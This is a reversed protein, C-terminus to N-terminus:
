ACNEQEPLLGSAELGSILERLCDGPPKNKNNVVIEPSRPEEYIQQVGPLDNIEGSLAKQYLGKSDRQMCVEVPCKVYIEIFRPFKLRANKRFARRHATAAFVVIVGHDALLRGIFVMSNYFWERERQSYDPQPTLVQRLEDSDLVQVPFGRRRIEQALLSALTTKGSAPLGTLWVATGKLGGLDRKGGSLRQDEISRVM